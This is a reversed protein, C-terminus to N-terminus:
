FARLLFLSSFFLSISNTVEIPSRQKKKEVEVEVDVENRKKKEM